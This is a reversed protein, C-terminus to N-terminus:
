NQQRKLIFKMNFEDDVFCCCHFLIFFRKKKLFFFSYAVVKDQITAQASSQQETAKCVQLTFKYLTENLLFVFFAANVM